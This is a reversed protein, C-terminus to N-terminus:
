IHILSLNSDTDQVVLTAPQTGQWNGQTVQLIKATITKVNYIFIYRTDSDGTESLSQFASTTSVDDEYVTVGANAGTANVTITYKEASFISETTTVTLPDGDLFVSGENESLGEIPGESILDTLSVTQFKNGLGRRYANAGSFRRRDRSTISSNAM